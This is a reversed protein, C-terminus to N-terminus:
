GLGTPQPGEVSLGLVPPRGPSRASDGQPQEDEQHSPPSGAGPAPVQCSGVGCVEHLVCGVVGEEVSGHTRASAPVPAPIRDGRHARHHIVGCSPARTQCRLHLLQESRGGEPRQPGCRPHCRCRGRATECSPLKTHSQTQPDSLPDPILNGPRLPAPGLCTRHTGCGAEAGQEAPKGKAQGAKCTPPILTPSLPLSKVSIPLIHLSSFLENKELCAATPAERGHAARVRGLPVEWSQACPPASRRGASWDPLMPLM